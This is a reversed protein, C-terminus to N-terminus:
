KARAREINSFAVNALVAVGLAGLPLTVLGIPIFAEYSMSGLNLAIAVLVPGFLGLAAGVLLALVTVLARM